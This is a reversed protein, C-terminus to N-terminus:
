DKRYFRHQGAAVLFKKNKIWYPNVYTAHYHTAGRTFDPIYGEVTWRAIQKAVDWAKKDKPIYKHALRRRVEPTAATLPNAWSFQKPRFVVECINEPARAARNMTVQAVMHQGIIPEGRAEHYINLAMCLIAVEIM